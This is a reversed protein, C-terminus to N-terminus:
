AHRVRPDVLRYAIDILTTGVIVIIAYVIVVGQVVNYDRSNIANVLVEGMGPRAFVEETLASGGMVVILYLGVLPVLPVASPQLGHRLLVRWRGVGKAYATRIHDEGLTELMISRTVRSQFAVGLLGLSLAPLILEYLNKGIDSFPASGTTPMHLPLAIFFIMLVGLYFGPFSLLLLSLMRAIYDPIRDKYAAAWVGFLNGGIVAILVAALGLELTYPLAAGILGSVTNNTTMSKGLSGHALGKIFDWYQVPLPHNLGLRDEVQRVNAATANGGLLAQATNGPIRRCAFFTLTAVAWINFVM